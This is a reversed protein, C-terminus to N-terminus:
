HFIILNGQNISFNQFYATIILPIRDIKILNDIKQYIKWYNLWHKKNIQYTSIWFYDSMGPKFNVRLNNEPEPKCHNLGPNQSINTPTNIDSIKSGFRFSLRFSSPGPIPKQTQKPKLYFFQFFNIYYRNRETRLNVVSVFRYFGLFSVINTM